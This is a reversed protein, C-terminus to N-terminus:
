APTRGERLTLVGVLGLVLGLIGSTLMKLGLQVPMRTAQDPQSIMRPGVGPNNSPPGQLDTLAAVLSQGWAVALRVAQGEDGRVVSLRILGGGPGEASTHSHWDGADVSLGSLQATAQRVGDSTALALAGDTSGTSGVAVLAQAQYQAPELSVIVGTVSAALLGVLLVLGGRFLLPHAAEGFGAKVDLSSDKSM